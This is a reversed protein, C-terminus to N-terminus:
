DNDEKDGADLKDMYEQNYEYDDAYPDKIRDIGDGSDDQEELYEVDARAMKDSVYDEYEAPLSLTTDPSAQVILEQTVIIPKPEQTKLEAEKERMIADLKAQRIQRAEETEEAPKMSDQGKDFGRNYAEELRAAITRLMEDHAIFLNRCLLCEQLLEDAIENFDISNM